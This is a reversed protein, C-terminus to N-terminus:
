ANQHDDNQPKICKFNKAKYTINFFRFDQDFPFYLKRIKLKNKNSSAIKEKFLSILSIEFLNDFHIHVITESSM